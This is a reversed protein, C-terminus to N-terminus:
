GHAVSSLLNGGTSSDYIRFTLDHLGSVSAGTGDLIRGQQTIQLPVAQATSLFSALLLSLIM